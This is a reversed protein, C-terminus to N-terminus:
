SSTIIDSWLSQGPAIDLKESKRTFCYRSEKKLRHSENIEFEKAGTVLLADPQLVDVMSQCFKQIAQPSSNKPCRSIYIVDFHKLFPYPHQSLDLEALYLEAVREFRFWKSDKHKSIKLERFYRTRHDESFFSLDSERFVGKALESLGRRQPATVLFKLDISSKKAELRELIFIFLILAELSSPSAVWVRFDTPKSDASRHIQNELSKKLDFFSSTLSSSERSLLSEIGEKQTVIQGESISGM